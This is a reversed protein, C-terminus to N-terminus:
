RRTRSGRRARRAPVGADRGTFGYISQYDDGVVCLDDRGGLWCDLLTQQLLNVDQYEDVTFAVTASASSPPRTSTTSCSSRRARAPGRLGDRGQERKRAEYREYVRVMLDAPIPPAHGDLASAYRQPIIRRNRAWEIETALDGAPRFKYPAPLSNALQRLM